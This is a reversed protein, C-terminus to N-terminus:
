PRMCEVAATVCGPLVNEIEKMDIDAKDRQFCRLYVSLSKQSFVAKLPMTDVQRYKTIPCDVSVPKCYMCTTLCRRGLWVKTFFVAVFEGLTGCHLVSPEM